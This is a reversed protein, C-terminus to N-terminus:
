PAPCSATKRYVTQASKYAALPKEANRVRGFWETFYANPDKSKEETHTMQVQHGKWGLYVPVAASIVDAMASSRDRCATLAQQSAAAGATLGTCARSDAKDWNQKAADYAKLDAPGSKKTREWIAHAQEFTIKGHDYDTQAYVHGSWDAYNQDAAAVLKEGVALASRCATLRARAASDSTPSVSSTPNTTSSTRPTDSVATSSPSAPSSSHTADSSDGGRSLGWATGAAAVCLVATGSLIPWAKRTRRVPRHRGVRRETM